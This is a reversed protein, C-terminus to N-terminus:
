GFPTEGDVPIFNEQMGESRQSPQERTQEKTQKRQFGRQKGFDPFVTPNPIREWDQFGLIISNIESSQYKKPRGTEQLGNIWIDLVCTRDKDKLYEEIMGVKGDDITADQQLRTAIENVDEPLILRPNETRYIQVAQAWAQKIDELASEDFLSKTPANVGVKLILFRRNGTEDSLFDVKNTTGFFVCQRLFTDCRREYPLRIKDQRASLFRKVSDTGGATRELSKLESLEIIWSGILSQISNTSDLSDLNDNFWADDLALLQLFTSKGIGQKGTLIAACDFKCGPEYIRKVAAVMMLRMVEYNYDNDEAGLYDPLLRRINNEDGNWTFTEIMDKVPHFKNRMGINKVADFFDNRSTLGYESQIISFLESDDHSDWTRFNNKSEWPTSGFLCMQMSFENYKIKGAFRADNELVVEWNRCCQIIKRKGNEYERYLLIGSVSQHVESIQTDGERKKTVNDTLLAEFEQKGHKEFFDTIDAKPVDPVPVIIKASKAVGYIDHLITDAVQQGPIDNDALIVVNANKVLESFDTQWDNTGGYTFATYGHKCLTDVDKEGEVLFVNKGDEVAKKIAKINGYIAKVDKKSRGGLGYMFRDNELKGYILKKGTLRLKTFAYNGDNITHYHYVAEIKKHERNEVYSKWDGKQPLDDYFLDTMSLGVASVVDETRCGAFCRILVGKNGVSVSLSAKKDNHCPCRCLANNKGRKEVTLRSLVYDFRENQNM